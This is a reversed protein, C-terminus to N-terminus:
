IPLSFFNMLTATILRTTKFIAEQNLYQPLHLSVTYRVGKTLRRVFDPNAAGQGVELLAVRTYSPGQLM